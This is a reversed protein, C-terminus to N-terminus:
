RRPKPSSCTWEALISRGQFSSVSWSSPPSERLTKNRSKETEKFGVGWGRRPQLNACTEQQLGSLTWIHPRIVASQRQAWSPEVKSSAKFPSRCVSLSLGILKRYEGRHDIIWNNIKCLDIYIKSKHQFYNCSWVKRVIHHLLPNSTHKSLTSTQLRISWVQDPHLASATSTFSIYSQLARRRSLNSNAVCRHPSSVDHSTRSITAWGTQRDTLYLYAWTYSMLILNKMFTFINLSEFM